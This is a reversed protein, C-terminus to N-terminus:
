LRAHERVAAVLLTGVGLLLFALVFSAVVSRIRHPYTSEDPLSPTAVVALYRHQRAADARAIELGAMASEYAKQSFEKEVMAADFDALAGSLGGAKSNVLRRSEGSVQASLSKVKENSALVQPADEKMFSKLQMLEARAKALEGELHTRIEMASSATQLPSFDEHQKQLAVLKLRAKSLREEARKVDAEAYGIRDTRERESLKNVKEESIAVVTEAFSRAREANFARVHLTISASAQDYDAHVHNKFYEYSEEFSAVSRLRSFFDHQPDKYHAIFKSHKDLRSLMDRSLVFDRVALADYGAGGPALGSLLGEVGGTPRESSQVSFQAFSEYQPSAILGFYVGSLLTPLVVFMLFRTVLRRSRAKRLAAAQAKTSGKARETTTLPTVEGLGPRAEVVQKEAPVSM